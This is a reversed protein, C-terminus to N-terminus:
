MADICSCRLQMAMFVSYTTTHLCPQHRTSHRVADQRLAVCFCTATNYHVVPAEILTVSYPANLHVNHVDFSTLKMSLRYQRQRPWMELHMVDENYQLLVISMLTSLAIVKM